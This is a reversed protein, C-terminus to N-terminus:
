LSIISSFLLFIIELMSIGFTDFEIKIGRLNNYFLVGLINSFKPYVKKDLNGMYLYITFRLIVFSGM